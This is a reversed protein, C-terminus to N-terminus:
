QLLLNLLGFLNWLQSVSFFTSTEQQAPLVPATRASSLLLGVSGTKSLVTFPSLHRGVLFDLLRCPNWLLLDLLRIRQASVTGIM